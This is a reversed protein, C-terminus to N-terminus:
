TTFQGPSPSIRIKSSTAAGGSSGAPPRARPNRGLSRTPSYGVRVRYDILCEHMHRPVRGCLALKGVGHVAGETLWQPPNATSGWMHAKATSHEGM